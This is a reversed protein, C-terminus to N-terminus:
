IEIVKQQLKDNYEKAKIAYKEKDIKSMAKWFKGKEKSLGGFTKNPFREKLETDVDKDALFISYGNMRGKKNTNRKNTTKFPVLYYEELEDYDINYKSSIDKLLFEVLQINQKFLINTLQIKNFTM